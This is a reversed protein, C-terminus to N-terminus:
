DEHKKIVLKDGEPSTVFKVTAGDFQRLYAREFAARNSNSDIHLTIVDDEYFTDM